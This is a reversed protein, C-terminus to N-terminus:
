KLQNTWWHKVSKNLQSSFLLSLHTSFLTFNVVGGGGTRSSIEVQAIGALPVFTGCLCVCHRPVKFLTGKQATVDRCLCDLEVEGTPFIGRAWYEFSVLWNNTHAGCFWRWLGRWSGWALGQCLAITTCCRFWHCKQLPPPFIVKHGVASQRPRGRARARSWDLFHREAWNEIINEDCNVVSLTYNIAIVEESM